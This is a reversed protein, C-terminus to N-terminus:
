RTRTGHYLSKYTRSWLGRGRPVKKMLTMSISNVIEDPAYKSPAYAGETGVSHLTCAESLLSLTTSTSNCGFPIADM